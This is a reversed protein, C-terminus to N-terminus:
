FFRRFRVVIASKGIGYDVAGFSACRHVHKRSNRFHLTSELIPGRLKGIIMSFNGSRFLTEPVAIKQLLM